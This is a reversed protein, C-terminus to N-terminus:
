EESELQLDNIMLQAVKNLADIKEASLNTITELLSKTAIYKNEIETMSNSNTRFFLDINNDSKKMDYLINYLFNLKDQESANSVLYEPNLLNNIIDNTNKESYISSLIKDNYTINHANEKLIDKLLNLNTFQKLSQELIKSDELIPLFPKLESINKFNSLGLLYDISVNFFGSLWKLKDFDPQKGKTEYGAITARGVGLADALDQQTLGKSTRLDKLREGFTMM